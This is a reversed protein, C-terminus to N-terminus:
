HLAVAAAVNGGLNITPSAPTGDAGYATVNGNAVYIKGSADVAVGINMVNAAAITPM